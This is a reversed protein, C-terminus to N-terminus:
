LSKEEYGLHFLARGPVVQPHLNYGIIIGNRPAAIVSKVEGLLSKIRAIEQGRSVQAGAKVSPYFLGGVTSRVWTSRAFYNTAPEKRMDAPADPLIGKHALVRIIGGLAQTSIEPEFRNCEGAELLIFPINQETAERRLSGKVGRSHMAVPAAFFSALEKVRENNMDGRIHPFNWRDYSASHLDIGFDAMSVFNDWIYHALRGGESGEDNGPFLRNLDRRDPLYRSLIHFGLINTVPLLTVQGSIEFQALEDALSQIIRIGNLEDGHVAATVLAYKGPQAGTIRIYPFQYSFGAYDEGLNLWSREIKTSQVTEGPMVIIIYSTAGYQCNNRVNNAFSAM